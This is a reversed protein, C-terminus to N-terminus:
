KGNILPDYGGGLEKGDNFGDGDTDPNNPDTGLLKERYDDIGDNDTDKMKENINGAEINEMNEAGINEFIKTFANKISKTNEPATITVPQNHNTLFLEIDSNGINNMDKDIFDFTVNIKYFNLDKKGIWVEAILSESLQDIIKDTTENVAQAGNINAIQGSDLKAKIKKLLGKLETKNPKLKYHYCNVEGIKENKLIDTVVFPKTDKLHEQLEGNLTQNTKMEPKELKIWQNSAIDMSIFETIQFKNIKFYNVSNLTKLDISISSTKHEQNSGWGNAKILIKNKLNDKNSNDTKGRFEVGIYQEKQLFPNSHGMAKITINAKGSYEYSKLNKTKNYAKQIIIQPRFFNLYVYVGAGSISLLILLIIIITLPSKGASSSTGQSNPFETTNPTPPQPPTPIQTQPNPPFTPAPNQNLPSPNEPTPNPNPTPEPISNQPPNKPHIRDQYPIIIM